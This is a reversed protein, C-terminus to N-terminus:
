MSQGRECNIMCEDQDGEPVTSCRQACSSGGGSSGEAEDTSSCAPLMATIFFALLLAALTKKYSEFNSV